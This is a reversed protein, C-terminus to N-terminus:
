EVITIKKNIIKGNLNLKDFIEKQFDNPKSTNRIYITKNDKTAMSVTSLVM